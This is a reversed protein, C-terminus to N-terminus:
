IVLSGKDGSQLYKETLVRKGALLEGEKQPDSDIFYAIRDKLTPIRDLLQSSHIGAGWVHIPGPVNELRAATRDWFGDDRSNYTNLFRGSAGSDTQPLTLRMETRQAIATIVPYIFDRYSIRAELLEFGARVLLQRVADHTYYHLHEFALWGPPLVEPSTACPVELLVKGDYKLAVRARKLAGLPDPLHELVGSFLVVDLNRQNVLTEAELGCEIDLGYVEKAQACVKPSPDCGSVTWSNHRFHNLHIGTACGVEYISGCGRYADRVISLLRNTMASPPALRAVDKRVTATYNSFKRYYDALVSGPVPRVQYIHGCTGCYGYGISVTGLGVVPLEEGSTEVADHKGCLPCPEFAPFVTGSYGSLDHPELVGLEGM